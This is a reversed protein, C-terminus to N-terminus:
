IALDGSAGQCAPCFYTSRAQEGQRRMAVLAGCALCPAGARDYVWLTPGGDRRRTQRRGGRLNRKMLARARTLTARLAEEPVDGVPGFPDLRELFLVESKYVNGIGAVLRQDMVAVGLPLAGAARLRRIAEDLDPRPALLDPGLARVAAPERGPPLLECVPANFCVAVWAETEIVAQVRGGGRWREGPRYVHWSGSMRMHTHLTRGDAFRVLLHKGRAEVAAITAGAISADALEPRDSRWGTVEAGGIARALTAASRHITDGEPM